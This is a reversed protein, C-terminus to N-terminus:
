DDAKHLEGNVQRVYRNGRGFGAGLRRFREDAHAEFSKVTMVAWQREHVTVGEYVVEGPEMSFPIGFDDADRQEARVCRVVFM